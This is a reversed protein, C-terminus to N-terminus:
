LMACSSMRVVVSMILDESQEEAGAEGPDQSPQREKVALNTTDSIYMCDYSKKVVLHM